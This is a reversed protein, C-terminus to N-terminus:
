AKGKEAIVVGVAALAVGALVFKSPIEGLLVFSAPLTFLPGLYAFIASDAVKATKLGWEFSFYAIMSSALAMYLIGSLAFVSWNGTHFTDGGLMGVSELVFLPIIVLLAVYFTISTHLLPSYEKRMPKLGFTSLAGDVQDSEKGMVHKSLIIYAAFCLNYLIVLANGGLRLWVSLSFGHETLIPEAVVFLTGLTAIAIGLKVQSKGKERYFFHGAWIVFLPAMIGIVAADISSTYKIGIFILIISAQGLLGLVFLNTLDRKDIPNRKLELATVPLLICCVVLFRFFLFSFLSIHSLTLKIIPTAVGWIATAVLLAAFALHRKPLTRIM